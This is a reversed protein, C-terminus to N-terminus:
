HDRACQEANSHGTLRPRLGNDSWHLIAFQVDERREFALRLGSAPEGTEAHDPRNDIGFGM